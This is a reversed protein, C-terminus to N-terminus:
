AARGSENNSSRLSRAAGSHMAKLSRDRISGKSIGPDAPPPAWDKLAAKKARRQQERAYFRAQAKSIDRIDRMSFKSM